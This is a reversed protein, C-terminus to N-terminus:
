NFHEWLNVVLRHSNKQRLINSKVDVLKQVIILILSIRDQKDEKWRKKVHAIMETLVDKQFTIAIVIAIVANKTIANRTIAAVHNKTIVAITIVHHEVLITVTIADVVITTEM